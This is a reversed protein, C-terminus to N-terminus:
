PLGFARCEVRCGVYGFGLGSVGLGSFFGKFRILYKGM